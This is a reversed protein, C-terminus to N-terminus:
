PHAALAIVAQAYREAERASLQGPPLEVVFSVQRLHTNQWRPATGPPWRIARFPVGALRAYRRAVPVSRGWARVLAQPQHFWITVEPRLRLLLSRAIRTEPESLPRPGGFEPGFPSGGPRWGAAFNRNLDVGRGNQRTGAAAGDPNLNPVLWLDLQAFVPAAVLRRVVAAGACEDGHICGVVLFKREGAPDGRAIAVIPRGLASEGLRIRRESARGTPHIRVHMHNDHHAARRVIGPPGVLGTHPGVFIVQAGARLFRDLLDQALGRDIQVPRAPERERGDRRPYYVDVDLGNQHSFHGLGGFQAGFDGGRRRSLDGVGIRPAGPHAARFEALVRLVTRVLRDTGFRRWPRNPSRDLAPDWTFFDRGEAPLQVGDVLRGATPTGLTRSQRWVVEPFDPGPRVPRPWDPGPRDSSHRDPGRAGSGASDLPPALAPGAAALALALTALAPLRRV